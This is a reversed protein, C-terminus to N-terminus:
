AAPCDLFLDDVYMGFQVCAFRGGAFTKSYVKWEAGCAGHRYVYDCVRSDTTQLPTREQLHARWFDDDFASEHLCDAVCQEVAFAFAGYGMVIGDPRCSEREIPDESDKNGEDFHTAVNGSLMAGASFGMCVVKDTIGFEDKKARLIRIARTIDDLADMRGYPRLRYTLIATNFGNRSFYEAVNMGECGTRIEFGGGHAVIVTGQKQDNGQAPVFVISPEPQLPDRDDYNPTKGKEWLYTVEFTELTRNWAEKFQAINMSGDPNRHRSINVIVADSDVAKKLATYNNQYM